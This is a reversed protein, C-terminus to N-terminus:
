GQRPKPMPAECKSWDLAATSVALDSGDARGSSAIGISENQIPSAVRTSRNHLQAGDRQNRIKPMLFEIVNTISLAVDVDHRLYLRKAM